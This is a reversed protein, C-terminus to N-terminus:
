PNILQGSLWCEVQIIENVLPAKEFFGADAVVDIEGGLTDVLLVYFIQGTLANKRGEARKITGTFFGFAEPMDPEGEESASFLGSPIFSQVAFKPEKTQAADFAAENEYLQVDQAFATLQIEVDAPFSLPELTKFDPVDFVFPYLGSEPQQQAAPEAWAYFGGDLPREPREVTATLCVKRRSSGKYHPNAGICENANNLQIWLEAGSEDAYVAYTGDNVRILTSEHYTKELLDQFEEETNIDFGIDSFNSM